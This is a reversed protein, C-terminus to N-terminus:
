GVRKAVDLLLQSIRAVVFLEEPSRVHIDKAKACDDLDLGGSVGQLVVWRSVEM